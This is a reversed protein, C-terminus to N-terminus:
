AVRGFYALTAQAGAASCRLYQGEMMGDASVNCGTGPTAGPVFVHEVQFPSAQHFLASWWGFDVGCDFCKDLEVSEVQHFSHRGALDASLMGFPFIKPVIGRVTLVA